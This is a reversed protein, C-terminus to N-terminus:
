ILYGNSLLLNGYGGPAHKPSSSSIIGSGFESFLEWKKSRDTETPLPAPYEKQKLFLNKDDENHFELLLVDDKISLINCYIIETDTSHHILVARSNFNKLSM